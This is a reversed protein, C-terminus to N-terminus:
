ILKHKKLYRTQLRVANKMPEMKVKVYTNATTEVNSHGLMQSVVALDVGATLLDTAYNHRLKHFTVTDEIGHKQCLETLGKRLAAYDYINGSENVFILKEIDPRYEIWRRFVDLCEESVPLDRNSALTKTDFLAIGERHYQGSISESYKIAAERRIHIIKNDFDIDTWYLGLLEGIRMGTMLLAKVITDYLMNDKTANFLAKITDDSLYRERAQPVNGKPRKFGYELPNVSIYHKIVAKRFVAKVLSYVAKIYKDSYIEGNEKYKLFTFFRYLRQEDIDEIYIGEFYKETRKSIEKEWKATRLSRYTIKREELVNQLLDNFLHKRKM